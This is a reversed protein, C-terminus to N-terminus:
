NREATVEGIIKNARRFGDAAVPIGAYVGCQLLIEAIEDPTVGNNLAGRIHVEFEHWRGM